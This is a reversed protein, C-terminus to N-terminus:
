GDKSIGFVSDPDVDARAAKLRAAQEPAWCTDLQGARNARGFFNPPGEVALWPTMADLTSQILGPLVTDLLEPVPAGIVHLTFAASRGPVANPVSAERALAGGLQRLEVAVLPVDATPGVRAILEDLGEHDLHSLLAGGETYPMPTAPDNHIQALSSYPMSSITDVIPRATARMPAVLREGDADDGVHAFRVHLVLQGRLPEPLEPLPPLRLISVSTSVTEPIVRGWDLWEHLVRPLDSAAFYLGGAYLSPVPMLDITVATVIGLGVKGGRLAWFLEPDNDADVWRTQGTGDVLEIGQVHDAAYGFTRAVPGLGGGLVYGVVGVLPSSGALPALGFPAAADLVDQWRTGAGVRAVREDPDIEVGALGRTNIAMGDRQAALVGHGAGLANVKWGARRAVRVAAAVHDASNAMVVVDPEHHVALNFGALAAGYAEDDRTLVTAAAARLTAVADDLSLEPDPM